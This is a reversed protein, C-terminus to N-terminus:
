PPPRSFGTQRRIVRGLTASRFILPQRRLQDTGEGKQLSVLYVGEQALPTFSALPASRFRDNKHHPNGQWAIGIKFGSLSALEGRWYDAVDPRTHLYPRAAPITELTTGLVGPLSLLPVQFDFAPLPEGHAVLRDVGEVGALLTLLAPPCELLVTAGREKISAAYRCFQMTDGLGQEAYLLITKGNLPEGRWRPQAFFRPLMGAEHWRYEYEAWGRNFDGTLLM